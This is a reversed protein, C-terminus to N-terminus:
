SNTIRYLPAKFIENEKTKRSQKRVIQKTKKKKKQRFIVDVTSRVRKEVM